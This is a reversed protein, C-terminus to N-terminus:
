FFFTHINIWPHPRNKAMLWKPKAVSQPGYRTVSGYVICLRQTRDFIVTYPNFIIQSIIFKDNPKGPNDEFISLSYQLKWVDYFKEYKQLIPIDLWERRLALTTRWAVRYKAYVNGGVKGTAWTNSKFSCSGASSLYVALTKLTDTHTHTLTHRWVSFPHTFLLFLSLCVCVCVSLSLSLALSFPLPFMASCLAVCAVITLHGSWYETRDMRQGM